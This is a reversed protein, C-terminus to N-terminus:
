HYIARVGAQVFDILRKQAEQNVLYAQQLRFVVLGVMVLLPIMSGVFLLVILGRFSLRFKM